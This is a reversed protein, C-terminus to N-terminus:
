QQGRRARSLCWVSDFSTSIGLPPGFAPVPGPPCPQPDPTPHTPPSQPHLDPTPTLSIRPSCSAPSPHPPAPPCPCIHAPTLCAPQRPLSCSSFGSLSVRGRPGGEGRPTIRRGGLLDTPRSGARVAPLARTTSRARHVQQKRCGGAAARGSRPGWSWIWNGPWSEPPLLAM